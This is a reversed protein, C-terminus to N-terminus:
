SARDVDVKNKNSPIFARSFLPLPKGQVLLSREVQASLAWREGEDALGRFHQIAVLVVPLPDGTRCPQCVPQRAWRDYHRAWPFDPLEVCVAPLVSRVGMRAACDALAEAPVPTKWEEPLDDWLLRRFPATTPGLRDAPASNASAEPMSSGVLDALKEGSLKGSTPRAELAAAQAPLTLQLLPPM